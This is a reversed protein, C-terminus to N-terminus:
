TFERPDLSGDPLIPYLNRGGPNAPDPIPVERARNSFGSDMFDLSVNVFGNQGVGLGFNVGTNIFEGDGRDFNEGASASFSGGESSDKLIINVVGAIADSGYQAAAGDRLVEIQKIASRPIMNLDAGASGAFQGTSSNILATRHRRKGNVLILTQDPNLGRLGASAIFTATGGGPRQPMNLSPVLFRLSEFLGVQPQVDLQEATFVDVAVPSELASRPRGRVGTVTIEELQENANTNIADQAGADVGFLAAAVSALVGTKTPRMLDDEEDDADDEVVQTITIVRKESLGGSLGTGRLLADLAEPLTFRGVVANAQAGAALDYPFLTIAGTQEALIELAQAVNRAPVDLEYVRENGFVAHAFLLAIVAYTTRARFRAFGHQKGRVIQGGGAAVTDGTIAVKDGLLSASSLFVYRLFSFLKRQRM